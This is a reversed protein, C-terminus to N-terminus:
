YSGPQIGIFQKEELEVFPAGYGNSVRVRGPEISMQTKCPFASVHVGSLQAAETLVQDPAYDVYISLYGSRLKMERDIIEKLAKKFLKRESDSVKAHKSLFIMFASQLADGNDQKANSGINEAWWSAAIESEKGKLNAM